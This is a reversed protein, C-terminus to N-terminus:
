LILLDFPFNGYKGALDRLEYRCKRLKGCGQNQCLKKTKRKFKNHYYKGWCENCFFSGDKYDMRGMKTYGCQKCQNQCEVEEDQEYSLLCVEASESLAVAARFGKKTKNRGQQIDRVKGIFIGNKSLAFVLDILDIYMTMIDGEGYIVRRNEMSLCWNDDMVEFHM